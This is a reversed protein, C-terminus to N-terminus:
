LKFGKYLLTNLRELSCAEPTPMSVVPRVKLKVKYLWVHDFSYNRIGSTLFLPFLTTIFFVKFYIYYFIPFLLAFAFSLNLLTLIRYKTAGLVFETIFDM